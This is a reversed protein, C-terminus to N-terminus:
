LSALCLKILVGLSLGHLSRNPDWNPGGLLGERYALGGGLARKGLNRPNGRKVWDELGAELGDSNVESERPFKHLNTTILPIEGRKRTKGTRGTELIEQSAGYIAEDGV